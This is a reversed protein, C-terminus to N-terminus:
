WRRPGSAHTRYIRERRKRIWPSFLEPLHLHQLDHPQYLSPVETTFADQFPFHVVDAGAEEITGDSSRM